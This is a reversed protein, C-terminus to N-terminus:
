NKSKTLCDILAETVEAENSIKHDKISMAKKVEDHNIDKVNMYKAGVAGGKLFGILCNRASDNKNVQIKLTIKPRDM